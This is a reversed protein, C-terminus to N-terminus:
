EITNDSQRIRYHILVNYLDDLSKCIVDLGEALMLNFPANGLTLAVGILVPGYAPRRGDESEHASSWERACAAYGLEYLTGIDKGDTVAVLVDAFAAERVNTVYTKRRQDPGADPPCLMEVYPAYVKRHEGAAEWDHLVGLVSKMRSMQDDNFWPSALYIRKAKKLSPIVQFHQSTRTM